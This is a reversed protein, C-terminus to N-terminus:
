AKCISIRIDSSAITKHCSNKDHANSKMKFLVNFVVCRGIRTNQTGDSVTM